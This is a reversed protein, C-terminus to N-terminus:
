EAGALEGTARGQEPFRIQTFSVFHQRVAGDCGPPVPAVRCDPSLGAVSHDEGEAYSRWVPDCRGAGTEVDQDISPPGRNRAGGSTRGM